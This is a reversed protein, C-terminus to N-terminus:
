FSRAAGDEASQSKTQDQACLPLAHRVLHSTFLLAVSNRKRWHRSPLIQSPSSSTGESCHFLEGVETSGALEFRLVLSSILTHMRPHFIAVAEAVACPRYKLCFAHCNGDTHEKLLGYDLTFDARSDARPTLRPLRLSEHHAGATSFIM